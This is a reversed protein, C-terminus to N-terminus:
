QKEDGVHKYYDSKNKEGWLKVGIYGVVFVPLVWKLTNGVNTIGLSDMIKEFATKNAEAAAAAEEAVTLAGQSELASLAFSTSDYIVLSDYMNYPSPKDLMLYVIGNQHTWSYFTGVLDGKAINVYIAAGTTSYDIRILAKRAYLSKGTLQSVNFYSGLINFVPIDAM